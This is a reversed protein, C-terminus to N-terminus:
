KMVARVLIAVVRWKLLDVQNVLLLDLLADRWTPERPVEEMFNEDLDKTFRRAQTTGTTHHEWNIEPLNFDGMLVLVTSKSTDRQEEFLLEIADNDQSSSRDCVARPGDIWGTRCKPLYISKDLQTDDLQRPQVVSTVVLQGSIYCKYGQVEPIM